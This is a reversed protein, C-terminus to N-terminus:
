ATLGWYQSVLSVLQAIAAAPGDRRLFDLTLDGGEDGQRNNYLGSRVIMWLLQAM